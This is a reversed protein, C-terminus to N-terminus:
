PVDGDETGNDPILYRQPHHYNNIRTRGTDLAPPPLWEFRGDARKRTNWGGATAARNDPGCALTTDNIDTAGGDAWVAVGHHVESHYGPRTCGRDRNLLVIRQAPSALRTTRGLMQADRVTVAAEAAWVRLAITLVEAWSKAGLSKPDTEAMLWGLIQHELAPLSWSLTTVEELVGILERHSLGDIPAAALEAIGARIAAM